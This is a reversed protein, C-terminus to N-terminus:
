TRWSDLAPRGVSRGVALSPARAGPTKRITRKQARGSPGVSVALAYVSPERRGSAIPSELFSIKSSSSSFIATVICNERKTRTNSDQRLCGGAMMEVGHFSYITREWVRKWESVRHTRTNYSLVSFSNSRHKMISFFLSVISLFIGQRRMKRWHRWNEKTAALGLSSYFVDSTSLKREIERGREKLIGTSFKPETILWNRIYRTFTLRHARKYNYVRAHRHFFSKLILLSYKVYRHLCWFTRTIKLLLRQEQKKELITTSCHQM